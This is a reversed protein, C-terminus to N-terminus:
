RLAATRNLPAKPCPKAQPVPEWGTAQAAHLLGHLCFAKQPLLSCALFSLGHWKRTKLTVQQQTTYIIATCVPEQEKNRHTNKGM